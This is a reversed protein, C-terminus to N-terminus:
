SAHKNEEQLIVKPCYMTQLAYVVQSWQSNALRYYVHQGRKKSAIVGLSRMKSLHQSLNSQLAGTKKELDSVCLEDDMLYCIITLRLPHALAKLGESSQKIQEENVNM